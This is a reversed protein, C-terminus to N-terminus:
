SSTRSVTQCQGSKAALADEDFAVLNVPHSCRGPFLQDRPNVVHKGLDPAQGFLGLAVAVIEGCIMPFIRSASNSRVQRGFSNPPKSYSATTASSIASAIEAAQADVPQATLPASELPMENPWKGISACRSNHPPPSSGNLQAQKAGVPM